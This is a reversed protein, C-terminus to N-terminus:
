VNIAWDLKQNLSELEKEPETRIIELEAYQLPLRSRQVRGLLLEDQAVASEAKDFLAQYRRLLEPKLMGMKHSVPSDYIWLRNGSGMLAGEMIKTYQYLFPAAAGYYGNLFRQTLSDVNAEPNWMLKSVLYTRLEAFDGGRSSAIQSFHMTAHNKKFLKINDQLIHFNPFPAVMNDFNIGYDWVFINNTIKSWGEMAKVFERGSANETLSVERNCDIDCLMINVNPLPKVHKPPHMTYLYALTSFEKDPFRAALKNLFHIMSGSLAGEYDDVKKCDECTCHTYNGDNQSVSILHMEPNAKFISDIRQSVVEFLQPNSLCWQSAKGPHREANFFSYYEPHEEGYVASPLLKDFTHVWLGDAFVERPEELRNWLKYISDTHMGYFQSQRYRFAPNDTINLLPVVLDKQQEFSCEHEGWYSVGFCQELLTVVGYISGKGAGGVIHLSGNETHLRFGDETITKDTKQNSIIIDGKRINMQREHIGRPLIPLTAGSIRKVFTQLLNAATRDTESDNALIIRSTPKYNKVISVQAHTGFSLTLLYILTILRSTNKM